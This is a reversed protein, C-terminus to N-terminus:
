MVAASAIVAAIAKDEDEDNTTTTDTEEDDEDDDDEDMNIILSTKKREAIDNIVEQRLEDETKDEDKKANKNLVIFPKKVLVPKPVRSASCKWFWPADYVIKVEDGDMLKQRVHKAQTTNPWRKFHVFARKFADGNPAEKQILDVRDIFEAGFLEAFVNYVRKKDLNAFVRPICISPENVALTENNNKSSM